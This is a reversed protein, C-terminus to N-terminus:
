KYLEEPDLTQNTIRNQRLDCEARRWRLSGGTSRQRLADLVPIYLCALPGTRATEWPSPVLEEQFALWDVPLFSVM